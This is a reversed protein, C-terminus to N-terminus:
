EALALAMAQRANRAMLEFGRAVIYCAAAAQNQTERYEAVAQADAPDPKALAQAVVALHFAQGIEDHTPWGPPMPPPTLRLPKVDDM